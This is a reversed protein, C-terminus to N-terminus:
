KVQHNTKVIKKSGFSQKANKIIEIELYLFAEDRIKLKSITGISNM